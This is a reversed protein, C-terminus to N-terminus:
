AKEPTYERQWEDAMPGEGPRSGEDLPSRARASRKVTALSDRAFRYARFRYFGHRRTETTYGSERKPRPGELPVTRPRWLTLKVNELHTHEDYLQWRCTMHLSHSRPLPSSPFHVDRARARNNPARSCARSNLNRTVTPSLTPRFNFRITRGRVFRPLRSRFSRPRRRWRPESGGTRAGWSRCTHRGGKKKGGWSTPKKWPAFFRYAIVLSESDVHSREVTLKILHCKIAPM